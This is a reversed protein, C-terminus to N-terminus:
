QAKEKLKRRRRNENACIRCVRRGLSDVHKFEHGRICTARRMQRGVVGDGRRLNESRTVPELHDPNVCARNRCLHDLDLGDPIPGVISEYTVRHAYRMQGDLWFLGYGNHSKGATWEWCDGSRDIKLALRAIM